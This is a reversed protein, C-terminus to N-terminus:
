DPIALFEGVTINDYVMPQFAIFEGANITVMGLVPVKQFILLAAFNIKIVTVLEAPLAMKPLFAVPEPSGMPFPYAIPRTVSDNIIACGTM